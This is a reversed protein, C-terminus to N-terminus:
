EPTPIYKWYGSGERILALPHDSSFKLASTREGSHQDLSGVSEGVGAIEFGLGIRTSYEFRQPERESEGSFYRILTFRLDWHEHRPPDQTHQCVDSMPARILIEVYIGMGAGKRNHRITSLTVCPSLKLARSFMIALRPGSNIARM